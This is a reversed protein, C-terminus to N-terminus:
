WDKLLEDESALHAPVTQPTLGQDGVETVFCFLGADQAEGAGFSSCTASTGSAPVFVRGRETRPRTAGAPKDCVAVQDARDIHMLQRITM